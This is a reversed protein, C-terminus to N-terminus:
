FAVKKYLEHFLAIEVTYHDDYHHLFRTILYCIDENNNTIYQECLQLQTAFDLSPQLYLMSELESKKNNLTREIRCYNLFRSVTGVIEDELISISEVLSKGTNVIEEALPVSCKLLKSRVIEPTRQHCLEKFWRHLKPLTTKLVHHRLGYLFHYPDFQDSSSWSTSNISKEVYWSIFNGVNAHMITCEHNYEFNSM